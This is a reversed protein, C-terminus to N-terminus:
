DAAGPAPRPPAILREILAALDSRRYPKSLRPLDIGADPLEPYGSIIAVPLHPWASRIRAALEAGTMGPMAYDTVVLDIAPDARLLALAVAASNAGVAHHGLDELMEATGAVVMPDDDVVLVRCSRTRRREGKGDRTM